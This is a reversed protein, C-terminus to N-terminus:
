RLQKQYAVPPHSHRSNPCESQHSPMAQTQDILTNPPKKKKKFVILLATRRFDTKNNYRHLRSLIDNAFWLIQLNRLKLWGSSKWKRTSSEALKSDVIYRNYQNCLYQSLLGKTSDRVDHLEPPTPTSHPSYLVPTAQLVHLQRPHLVTSSELVLRWCSALFSMWSSCFVKTCAFDLYKEVLHLEHQQSCVRGM